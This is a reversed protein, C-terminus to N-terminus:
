FFYARAGAPYILNADKKLESNLFVSVSDIFLLVLGVWYALM